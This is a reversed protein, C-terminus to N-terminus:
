KLSASGPGPRLLRLYKERNDRRALKGSSTKEIWGREVLQVHRVAIESGRNVELRIAEAIQRSRVADDVDVEALIIVEETGESENFVGFAVVRGPHVGAVEGALTELDQPHINRGAVIILDNARGTIFLEGEAFYGLDGTLYWGERFADRTLDERRYYGSLMCAGRIVIEGVARDPLTRNAADIVKVETDDVPRGASLFTVSPEAGKPPRAYGDRQLSQLAVRDLRVPGPMEGQTVAFVNEAMAYCTTLAEQRLGWPSFRDLFMRQSVERMPESCNIVARWSSLDVGELHRDRVKQACFNYAFNPLWTLTGRYDSVARFLRQPARVWDFPSMLVLSSQLLLPMLFGPILGMDHYLPLWSVVVDDAQMDIVARYARVQDLVARNSLAVGKQLGTTGSSHQLLALDDAAAAAGELESLGGAAGPSVSGALVALPPSDVEDLLPHLEAHFMESTVLAAPQTIELLAQLSRRYKPPSLKETLPSLIAPVNGNLIAGLFAALLDVRHELIIAVPQGFGVGVQDYHRAFDASREILRRYSVSECQDGRLLHVAVKESSTEYAHALHDFLTSM